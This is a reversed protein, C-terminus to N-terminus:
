EVLPLRLSNKKGAFRQICVCLSVCLRMFVPLCIKCQMQVYIRLSRLCSGSGVNSAARLQACVCVCVSLYSSVLEVNDVEM